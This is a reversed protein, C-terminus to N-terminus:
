KQNEIIEYDLENCIGSIMDFCIKCTRNISKKLFQNRNVIVTAYRSFCIDCSVCSIEKVSIKNKYNSFSIGEIIIQLHKDAITLVIIKHDNFLESVKLEKSLPFETLKESVNITLKSNKPVLLYPKIYEYFDYILVDESVMSLLLNKTKEVIVLSYNLIYDKKINFNKQENIFFVNSTFHIDEENINIFQIKGDSKLTNIVNSQFIDEDTEKDPIKKHQNNTM